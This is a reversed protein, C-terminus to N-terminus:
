ANKHLLLAQWASDNESLYKSGRTPGPSMPLIPDGSGDTGKGTFCGTAIATDGSGTAKRDSYETTAFKTSRIIVLTEAKVTVEAENGKKVFKDALLATLLESNRKIQAQPWHHEIAAVAKEADARQQAQWQAAIELSLLGIFRWILTENM